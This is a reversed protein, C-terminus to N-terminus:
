NQLGLKGRSSVFFFFFHFHFYLIFVVLAQVGSQEEVVKSGLIGYCLMSMLIFKFALLSFTHLFYSYLLILPHNCIIHLYMTSISFLPFITWDLSIFSIISCLSHCYSLSFSFFFFFFFFSHHVAFIVNLTRDNTLGTSLFPHLPRRSM